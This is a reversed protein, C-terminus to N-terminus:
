SNEAAGWLAGIEAIARRHDEEGRIVPVQM